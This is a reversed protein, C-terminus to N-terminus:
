RQIRPVHSLKRSPQKSSPFSSHSHSGTSAASHSTYIIREQKRKEELSHRAFETLELLAEELERERQPNQM